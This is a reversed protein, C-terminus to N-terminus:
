KNEDEGLAKALKDEIDKTLDDFGDLYTALDVKSKDAFVLRISMESDELGAGSENNGAKSYLQLDAIKKGNSIYFLGANYYSNLQNINDEINGLDAVKTAGAVDLESKIILDLIQFHMNVSKIAKPDLENDENDNSGLLAKVDNSSFSGKMGMGMGLLIEGSKRFSFEESIQSGNANMTNEFSFPAILLKSQIFTPMGQSDFASKFFMQMLVKGSVVLKIDVLAPVSLEDSLITKNKHEEFAISYMADNGRGEQSPFRVIIQNSPSKTFEKGNWVYEGKADNYDALSSEDTNGGKLVKEISKTSSTKGFESVSNLLAVPMFEADGMPENETESGGDNLLSLLHVSTNVSELKDVGELKDVMLNATKEIDKKSQEEFVGSSNLSNSVAGPSSVEKKCATFTALGLLCVSFLKVKNNM